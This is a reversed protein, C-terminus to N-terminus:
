FQPTDQIWRFGTSRLRFSNPDVRDLAITVPHGDLRGELRLRDPSDQQFTFEGLPKPQADTGNSAEALTLRHGATDVDLETDVLTGDMRQYTMVGPTDFVIRQWRNGDTLLPPLAQGDREFDQVSWIGYLPPKTRYPGEDRWTGWGIQAFNAAVWVGLVVQVLAAIRRSRRTHFPYPATSPGTARDLFLGELLRRAEPALLVLCMLLLHGALIKVPVGFTMNLVFVQATAILTLMAGAIATRPIFLLVGGLVEALGLLMEYQPSLGVQTWLVGMPGFDGLPHLLATLSPVPMQTPFLKSWGFDMMSAAVCMRIFLLFWGALRRYDPRRRDLVTWIATGATAIVLLCFLQVWYITQDGSHNNRFVVDTGFVTRGVWTLPANLLTTQWLMMEQYSPFLRHLFGVYDTILQPYTVCFLGFYLFCLRFAIRTLPNWTTRRSGEFDPEAAARSTTVAVVRVLGEDM